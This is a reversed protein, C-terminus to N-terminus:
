IYCETQGRLAAVRLCAAFYVIYLLFCSIIGLTHSMLYPISKLTSRRDPDVIIISQM